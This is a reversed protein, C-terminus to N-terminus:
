GFRWVRQDDPRAPEEVPTFGAAEAVAEAGANAPNCRAVVTEVNLEDVAWAAVLGAATSALGRGRHEPGVWWGIEATGAQPDVNVLGVEGAVQGDVDIVLDIALGRARRDAEGGIWREAATEDARAPVGTWRVVEPDSWAAALAGADDRRWPRLAVAGEQLPPDPLPIPTRLTM